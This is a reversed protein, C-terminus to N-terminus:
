NVINKNDKNASPSKGEALRIRQRIIERERYICCRFNASPGPILRFPLEEKEADLVGDFALKAVEYLVEHKITKINDNVELM